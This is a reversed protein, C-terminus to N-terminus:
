WLITLLQSPRYFRPAGVEKMLRGPMDGEKGMEAEFFVQDEIAAKATREMEDFEFALDDAEPSPGFISTARTDADDPTLAALEEIRRPPLTIHHVGSLQLCEEVSMLAAPLVKTTEAKDRDDYYAQAQRVVDMM